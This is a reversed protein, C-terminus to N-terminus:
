CRPADSIDRKFGVLDVEVPEDETCDRGMDDTQARRGRSGSGGEKFPRDSSAKPFLKTVRDAKM